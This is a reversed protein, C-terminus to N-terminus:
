SGHRVEDSRREPEAQLTPAGALSGTQDPASKQQQPSAGQSPLPLSRGMEGTQEPLARWCFRCQSCTARPGTAGNETPCVLAAGNGERWTVRKQVTGRLRRVRFVLDARPPWDDPETLLWALRVKAPVRRPVGIEQDCSFWIRVNPLRAMAVLVRRIGRVRWSRTYLFFRVAPAAVMISLWQRAYAASYFDGATHVRVVDVPRASLFALVRQPFDPRRSLTLNRRYRARVSPRFRELHYSYCVRACLASRGPCTTRSPLGFGWLRKRLGLKTNGSTLM